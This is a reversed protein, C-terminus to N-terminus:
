AGLETYYFCFLQWADEVKLWKDEVGDYRDATAIAYIAEFLEKNLPAFGELDGDNLLAIRGYKRIVESYDTGNNIGDNTCSVKESRVLSWEGFDCGEGNQCIKPYTDKYTKKPGDSNSSNTPRLLTWLGFVALALIVLALAVSLVTLLLKKNFPKRIKDKKDKKAKKCKKKKKEKGKEEEPIEEVYEVIEKNEDYYYTKATVDLEELSQHIDTAFEKDCAVIEIEDGQEAQLVANELQTKLEM